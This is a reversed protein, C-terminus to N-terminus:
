RPGSSGDRSQAFEIGRETLEKCHQLLLLGHFMGFVMQTINILPEAQHENFPAADASASCLNSLRQHHVDAKEQRWVTAFEPQNAGGCEGGAGVPGGPLGPLAARKHVASKRPNERSLFM